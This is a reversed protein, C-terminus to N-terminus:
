TQTGEPEAHGSAKAWPRLTYIGAERCAAGVTQEPAVPTGRLTVLGFSEADGEYGLERAVVITLAGVLVSAGVNYDRAGGTEEDIITVRV